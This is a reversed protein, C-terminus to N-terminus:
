GELVEKVASWLADCLEESGKSWYNLSVCYDNGGVYPNGPYDEISKNWARKDDLFEIMQGISFAQALYYGSNNLMMQTGHPLYGKADMYKILKEKQKDSLEELQGITIHQKM